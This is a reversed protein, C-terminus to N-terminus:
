ESLLAVLGDAIGQASTGIAVSYTTVRMAVDAAADFTSGVRGPEMSLVSGTLQRLARGPPIATATTEEAPVLHPFGLAVVEATPVVQGPFASDLFTVVAEEQWPAGLMETEGNPPPHRHLGARRLKVAGHLCHGWVQDDRIEIAITEDGLVDLGAAACAAITTSKGSHPPGALVIGRGKHAVMAAHVVIRGREGLWPVFLTQLPRTRHWPMMRQHSRVWGVARQDHRDLRIDFHPTSFHLIRGDASFGLKEGAAGLKVIGDQQPPLLGPTVGTAQEDWLQLTLAPQKSTGPDRALSRAFLHALDLGVLQGRVSVGGVSFVEEVLQDPCRTRARDFGEDLERLPDETVAGTM